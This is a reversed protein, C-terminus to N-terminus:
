YQWPDFKEPKASSASLTAVRQKYDGTFTYAVIGEEFEKIDEFDDADTVSEVSKFWKPAWSDGKEKRTKAEARQKEELEQKGSQAEKSEGLELCSRDPRLRADTPLVGAGGRPASEWSNLRHTYNGFGYKDAKSPPPATSWIKQEPAGKAPNGDKDCPMTSISETWKGGVALKPEGDASFVTGSVVYKGKSFWGSAQFHLASYVGTTLNVVLLDGITDVWTYGVIINHARSVPPVIAYVEGTRKLTIRTRGYPFVDLSNGYFKTKPASVLEYAFKDNDAFGAAIPPHHSVQEAIYHAGNKLETEFTEGLIPNFPKYTRRNGPYAGIAFATVYAVRMHPDECDDAKDLLDINETIEAMKQLTSFPEMLWVPISLLSMVDSGVYQSLQSWMAKREEDHGSTSSPTGATEEGEPNVVELDNVGLANKVSNTVGSVLGKGWSAWGEKKKAPETM